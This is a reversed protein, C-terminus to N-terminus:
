KVWNLGKARDSLFTFSDQIDEEEQEVIGKALPFQILFISLDFHDSIIIAENAEMESHWIGKKVRYNQNHKIGTKNLRDLTSQPVPTGPPFYVGRRRALKSPYSWCIFDDRAVVLLAAKDTLELWKLTTATFSTEYRDACHGLLDLTVEQGKTQERFDNAPMLLYSSFKNAESEIKKSEVGGYNLVDNQGCKFNESLTRHLLYHGLEHGLTFNTRGPVTVTDDYYIGWDGKSKRKALVGDIGAIGHGKIVGIPDNPFKKNTVEDVIEKVKIPFNQGCELWLKSLQIGWASPTTPDSM